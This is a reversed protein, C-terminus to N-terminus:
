QTSLSVVSGAVQEGQALSLQGVLTIFMPQGNHIMSQGLVLNSGAFAYGEAIIRGNLAEVYLTFSDMGDSYNLVERSGVSTTDLSYQTLVFGAPLHGALWGADAANAAEMPAPLRIIDNANGVSSNVTGTSLLAISNNSNGPELLVVGQQAPIVQPVASVGMRQAGIVMVMTVSAAVALGAAPQWFRDFRNVKPAKNVPLVSSKQTYAPEKDIAQRVRNSLDLPADLSISALSAERKLAASALQYRAWQLRVQEDNESAKLMRQLELPQAADDMVASLSERVSVSQSEAQASHKTKTTYTSVLIDNGLNLKCLKSALLSIQNLRIKM